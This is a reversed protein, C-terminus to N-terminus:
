LCTDEHDKGPTQGKVYWIGILHLRGILSLLWKLGVKRLGIEDCKLVHREIDM